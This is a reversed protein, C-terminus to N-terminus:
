MRVEVQPSLTDSGQSWASTNTVGWPEVILAEM